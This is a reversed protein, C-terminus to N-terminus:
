CENAKKCRLILLKKSSAVVVFEKHAKILYIKAVEQLNSKFNFVKDVFFEGSSYITIHQM